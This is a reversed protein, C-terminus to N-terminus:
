GERNRLRTQIQGSQLHPDYYRYLYYILGSPSDTEKSSFRYLNADALLGSKSIINGFADYLYKAVINQNTNIMMTINGNGDGHYYNQGLPITAYDLATWALLGGIGGAGDLSGSLDLGRTYTVIPQNGADREQIVLNGDYIYHIENTQAWAGIQWTFERRIRRRMKGDYAFKSMWQNSVSVQIM